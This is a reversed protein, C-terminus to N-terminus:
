FHIGSNEEQMLCNAATHALANMDLLVYFVSYMHM